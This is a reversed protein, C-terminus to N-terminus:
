RKPPRGGLAKIRQSYQGSICGTMDVTRSCRDRAQLFAKQARVLSDRASGSQADRAAFYASSMQVDLAGLRSDTCLAVEVETRAKRCDFSTKVPRAPAGPAKGASLESRAGSPALRLSYADHQFRKLERLLRRGDSERAAPGVFAVWMRAGSLSGYDPVWLYGADFGLRELERARDRADSEAPYAGATAIWTPTPHSPGRLGNRM